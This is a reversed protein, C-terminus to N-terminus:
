HWPGIATSNLAERALHSLPGLRHPTYAIPYPFRANLHLLIRGVLNLEPSYLRSRSL